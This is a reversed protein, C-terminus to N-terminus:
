LRKDVRKVLKKVEEFGMSPNGEWMAKMQNAAHCCAVVNGSVYGKTSDIRDITRDTSKMGNKSIPQTLEVGTYYCKKARMLNKFATFSLGFEIGRTRANDAKSMYRRAISIDEKSSM